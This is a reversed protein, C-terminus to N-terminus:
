ASGLGQGHPVWSNVMSSGVASGRTGGGVVVGPGCAGCTGGWLGAGRLLPERLGAPQLSLCQGLDGVGAPQHSAACTSLDQLMLQVGPDPILRSRSAAGYTCWTGM